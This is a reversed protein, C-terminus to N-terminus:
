TMTERTAFAALDTAAFRDAAASPLVPMWGGHLISHESAEIAAHLTEMVIRSGLPGLQKGEGLLEAERLVYFWLPTATVLEPFARAVDGLKDASDFIDAPAVRALPADLLADAEDLAQRAPAIGLERGRNMTSAALSFTAQGRTADAMDSRLRSPLEHLPPALHTDIAAARIPLPPAGPKTPEGFDLLCRWDTAWLFHVGEEMGDDSNVYSFRIFDKVTVVTWALPRNWPHYFPRIMSHGFRGAAAAFEIPMWAEGAATSGARVLRRGREMVDRYTDANVIRPLYDHLVVSQFHQLWTKRVESWWGDGRDSGDHGLHRAVANYFKILLLHSQALPLFDDNRHDAILPKRGNRPIDELLARETTFGIDLLGDEGCLDPFDMPKLGPLVSDLDLAPSRANRPSLANAGPMMATIDHFIFQGLYTYGAPIDSDRSAYPRAKMAAALALIAELSPQSEPGSVGFIHAYGKETGAGPKAYSTAAYPCGGTPARGLGDDDGRVVYFDRAHRM